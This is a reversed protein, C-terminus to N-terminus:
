SKDFNSSIDSTREAEQLKEYLFVRIAKIMVYKILVLDEADNCQDIIGRDAKNKRLSLEIDKIILSNTSSIQNWVDYIDNKGSINATIQDFRKKDMPNREQLENLTDKVLRMSIEDYILDKQNSIESLEKNLKKIEAQQSAIKDTNEKNLSLLAKYEEDKLAIDRKFAIIQNNLDDINFQKNEIETKLASIQKIQNKLEKETSALEEQIDITKKKASTLANELTINRQKLSEIEPSIAQQEPTEKTYGSLNEFITNVIELYADDIDFNILKFLLSIAIKCNSNYLEFGTNIASVNSNIKSILELTDSHENLMNNLMSLLVKKLYEDGNAIERYYINVIISDPINQKRFGKAYKDLLSSSSLIHSRYDKPSLLKFLEEYDNRTLESLSIDM